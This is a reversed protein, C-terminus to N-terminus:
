KIKVYGYPIEPFFIPNDSKYLIGKISIVFINKNNSCLRSNNISPNEGSIWNVLDNSYLYENATYLVFVGDANINGGIYNIEGNPLTHTIDDWSELDESKYLKAISGGGVSNREITAILFCGLKESYSCYLYHLSKFKEKGQM